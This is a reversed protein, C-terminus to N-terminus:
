LAAEARDPKFERPELLNRALSEFWAKITPPDTMPAGNKGRTVAPLFLGECVHVGLQRYAEFQEQDFFQDLTSQHPFEPNVLRYRRVLEPENGTVSLKLYLLLGEGKPADDLRPYHVRFLGCHTQSLKTKPDPRLDDLKADIEVGFDIQAHRVLTMFGPFTFDPDAEGDVCVIFKCRRRLLEYVGMNEIHGGDSLNLWASRESMFLGLMERLLCLFGPVKFWSCRRPNKIWFGLRVNLFTLLASLTPLTSLGMRSSVAAGSIAMASALDPPNKNMRWESTPAYGTSPSGCWHKSFFFFDCKRDRLAAAASSPLNVATNILHYPALGKLNIETLLKPTDDGDYRAVFTKALQDRYLRHPSTLNVNLLFISVVGFFGLLGYLAWTRHWDWCPVNTDIVGLGCFIYFVIVACIPMLFGAAVLALKLGIARWKPDELLPMIRMITPFAGAISALGLTGYLWKGLHHATVTVCVNPSVVNFLELFGFQLAWGAGCALCFILLISLLAGAFRADKQERRMASAYYLWALGTVALLALLTWKWWLFKFVDTFRVALLACLALAFLPACWNLLLGALTATVMSWRQWLDVASLYKAHQRLYAIASTDPGRPKGAQSFAEGGGIRSTLFSGTYGGGSVTSLFDVGKLLQKEALVQVVGLCFTASRIGGGSLALGVADHNPAPDANFYLARRAGVERAEVADIKELTEKREAPTEEAGGTRFWSMLGDVARRLLSAKPLAHALKQPTADVVGFKLEVDFIHELDKDLRREFDNRVSEAPRPAPQGGDAMTRLDEALDCLKGRLRELEGRFEDGGDRASLKGGELAKHWKATVPRVQDNLVPTVLNMFGSCGPYKKMTERTRDFLDKLSGLARADVGHQYPLPQTAIRTTLEVLLEHAANQDPTRDPSPSPEIM